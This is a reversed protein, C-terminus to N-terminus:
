QIAELEPANTLAWPLPEFDPDVIKGTLIFPLTADDIVVIKRLYESYRLVEASNVSWSLQEVFKRRVLEMRAKWLDPGTTGKPFKAIWHELQQAIAEADRPLLDDNPTAAEFLAALNPLDRRKITPIVRALQYHKEGHAGKSHPLGQLRPYAANINIDLASAYAKSTITFM